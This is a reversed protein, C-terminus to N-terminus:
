KYLEILQTTSLFVSLEIKLAILQNSHFTKNM